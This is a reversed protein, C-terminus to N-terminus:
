SRRARRGQRGGPERSGPTPRRPSARLSGAALAMGVLAAVAVIVWPVWLWVAEIALAAGGSISMCLLAFGATALDSADTSSPHPTM